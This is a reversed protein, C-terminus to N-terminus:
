EDYMQSTNMRELRSNGATLYEQFLVLNSFELVIGEFPFPQRSYHMSVSAVFQFRPCRTSGTCPIGNSNIFRHLHYRHDQEFTIKSSADHRASVLSGRSAAFSLETGPVRM